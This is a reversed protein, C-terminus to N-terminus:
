TLPGRRARTGPAAQGPLNAAPARAQRDGRARGVRRATRTATSCIACEPGRLARPRPHHPAPPASRGPRRLVDLDRDAEDTASGSGVPPLVLQRLERREPEQDPPERDPRAADKQEVRRTAPGVLTHGLLGLAAPWTPTVAPADVAHTRVEPGRPSRQLHIESTRTEQRVRRLGPLPLIPCSAVRCDDQNSSWWLPSTYPPPVFPLM